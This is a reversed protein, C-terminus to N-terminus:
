SLEPTAPIKAQIECTLIQISLIHLSAGDIAFDAHKIGVKCSLADKGRNERAITM